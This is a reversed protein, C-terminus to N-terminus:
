IIFVKKNFQKVYKITNETGGKRDEAVLALLIDCNQAIKKNREYFDRTDYGKPYYITIPIGLKKAAIEAFRDAGEPCGGSVLMDPGLKIIWEEVLYYDEKKNRRRSGVIGLIM